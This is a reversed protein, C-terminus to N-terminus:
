ARSLRFQLRAFAQLARAKPQRRELTTTTMIREVNRPASELPRM